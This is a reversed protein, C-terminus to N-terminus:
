HGSESPVDGAFRVTDLTLGLRELGTRVQSEPDASKAAMTLNVARCDCAAATKELERYLAGRVRDDGGLEFAVIVEVDLSQEYRLNSAPRFAAAGHVCGDPATVALVGGGHAILERGFEEWRQQSVRTATRVLPYADALQEEGLSQVTLDQM